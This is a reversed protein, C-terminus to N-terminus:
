YRTYNLAFQCNNGMALTGTFKPGDIRGQLTARGQQIEVDGDPHVAGELTGATVTRMSAQGNRVSLKFGFRTTSCSSGNGMTGNLSVYEGDFKSAQAQAQTAALMGAVFVTAFRM